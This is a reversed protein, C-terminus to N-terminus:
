KRLSPLRNHIFHLLKFAQGIQSVYYRLQVSINARDRAVIMLGSIEMSVNISQKSITPGFINGNVM